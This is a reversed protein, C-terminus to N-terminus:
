RMKARWLNGWGAMYSELIRCGVPGSQLFKNFNLHNLNKTQEMRRRARHCNNGVVRVYLLALTLSHHILASSQTACQPPASVQACKSSWLRMLVCCHSVVTSARHCNNGVVRTCAATVSANTQTACQSEIYQCTRMACQPPATANAQGRM